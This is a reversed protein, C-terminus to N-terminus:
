PAGEQLLLRGMWEVDSELPFSPLDDWAWAVTLQTRAETGLQGSADLWVLDQAPLSLTDSLRWRLGVLAPGSTPPEDLSLALLPAEPDTLRPDSSDPLSLTATWDEDRAQEGDPTSVTGTSHM